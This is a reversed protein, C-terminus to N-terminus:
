VLLSSDKVLTMDVFTIHFVTEFLLPLLVSAVVALHRQNLLHSSLIVMVLLDYDPVDLLLRLQFACTLSTHQVHVVSVDSNM